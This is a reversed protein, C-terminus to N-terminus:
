ILELFSLHVAHKDVQQVEQHVLIVIVVLQSIMM